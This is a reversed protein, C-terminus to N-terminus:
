RGNEQKSKDLGLVWCVQGDDAWDVIWKGKGFTRRVGRLLKQLRQAFPPIDDRAAQFIGLHPLTTSQENYTITDTTTAARTVATGRVVVEVMEMVVVDWRESESHAASYVECLSHALESPHTFHINLQPSFRGDGVVFLPRVTVPKELKPFRARLYLADHLLEPNPCIIQGKEKVLLRDALAEKYFGDLLIGGSPVPLRAGAAQDLLAGKEGVGQKRARKSGLWVFFSSQM